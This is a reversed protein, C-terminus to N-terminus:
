IEEDPAMKASRFAAELGLKLLLANWLRSMAQLDTLLVYARHRKGPCRVNVGEHRLLTRLEKPSLGAMDALQNLGYSVKLPFGEAGGM